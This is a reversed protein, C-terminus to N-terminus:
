MPSWAGSLLDDMLDDVSSKYIKSDNDSLELNDVSSNYISDNSSAPSAQRPSARCPSVQPTLPMALMKDLMVSALMKDSRRTRRLPRDQLRRLVRGTQRRKATAEKEM